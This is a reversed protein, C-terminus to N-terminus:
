VHQAVSSTWQHLPGDIGDVDEHTCIEERLRASADTLSTTVVDTGAQRLQEIEQEEGADHGCRAVHIKVEPFRMRLRKCPDRTHALRGPPLASICILEPEKDSPSTVLLSVLASTTLVEVEWQRPDLTAALLRLVAQDEGDQAPCALLRMRKLPAQDLAPESCTREHLREALDEGIECTAELIFEEDEDTLDDRERDRRAHLLAPVLIKDFATVTPSEGVHDLVIRSAEDQDNALLRQYFVLSPSLAPEDGLLIDLFKLRPHYKGLVVLCVTMPSSLVMGIPGWLFAWFAAAVLLSVESVGMSRGFLYPELVNGCIMEVVFILGIVLLPQTWDQFMAFSLLVPPLAAFWIGVYPIYRLLFVLLGWLLAYEVGIALMGLGISMGALANIVAQMVLFRSIRQGAEDLARTAVTFRNGSALRILRNRLDERKVLMFGTLVLALAASALGHAVPMLMGLLRTAWETPNARVIVEAPTPARGEKGEDDARPPTGLLGNFHRNFSEMRDSVVKIKAQINENYRPLREALATVQATVLWILGGLLLVTLLLVGLVAPVRHIHHRQLFTVLPSLLFSLYVALALPILISQASYLFAIVVVAVMTGSLVAFSHQWHHNGKAM